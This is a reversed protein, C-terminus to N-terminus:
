RGEGGEERLLWERLEALEAAELEAGGGLAAFFSKVSGGHVTRLFDKTRARRYEEETVAPTYLSRKGTKEAHVLGKEVLRGLFTWVTSPKWERHQLLEIIQASTLPGDADWILQMVEAESASMQQFSGM